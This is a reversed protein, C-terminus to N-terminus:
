HVTKLIEPIADANFPAQSYIDYKGFRLRSAHLAQRPLILAERDKETLKGEIFRLFISEDPGYLKDGVVPYGLSRLTARIQHTRGTHLQAELLSFGNSRKLCIFSTSCSESPADPMNCSFSRRKSVMARDDHYLWGNAELADPFDGQVLVNYFKGSAASKMTRSAWFAANANRAVLVIGSTERDLRNVFRVQEMPPIGPLSGEKLLAWLTHNFFCGSPHCPLNGPKDLAIFDQDMLLVGVNMDVAPEDIPRPKYEMEEGISLIHGSKAALGNILVRGEEILEQWKDRSHYTYRSSLYDLM